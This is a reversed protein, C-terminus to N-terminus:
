KKKLKMRFRHKTDPDEEYHWCGAYEGTKVLKGAYYIPFAEACTKANLYKKIFNIRKKTINGLVCALGYKDKITGIFENPSRFEIIKMSFKSNEKYSEQDGIDFGTMVIANLKWEGEFELTNELSISQKKM